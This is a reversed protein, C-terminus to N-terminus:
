GIITWFKEVQDFVRFIGLIQISRFQVIIRLKFINSLTSLNHRLLLLQAIFRLRSRASTFNKPRGQGRPCMEFDKAKFSLDEAKSKFGLLEWFHETKAELVANNKTQNFLFTVLCFVVYSSTQWNTKKRRLQFIIWHSLWSLWTM